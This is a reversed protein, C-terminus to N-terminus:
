PPDFSAANVGFLSSRIRLGASAGGTMATVETNKKAWLSFPLRVQTTAEGSANTTASSASLTAASGSVQFSVVANAIPAGLPGGRRVVASLNFPLGGPQWFGGKTGTLTINASAAVALAQDIDLRGHGIDSNPVTQGVNDAGLQLWDRIETPTADPHEALLLAAAGAVLATAASTGWSWEYDTPALTTARVCVGPAALSLSSGSASGWDIGATVKKAGDMQDTAAVAIVPQSAAKLAPYGVDVPATTESNGAAFVLVRNNAVANAIADNILTDEGGFTWSASLVDAGRAVATDIGCAVGLTTFPKEDSAQPQKAIRVPMIKSQWTVGAVGVSNNSVAAAIGAMETGHSDSPDPEQVDDPPAECPDADPDTPDGTADFPTVIKSKLDPHTTAVGNDLIAVIVGSSGTTKDWADFAKIRELAWQNVLFTDNASFPGLITVSCSQIGGAPGGGTEETRNQPLSQLRVFNPEASRVLRHTTLRNIVDLAARPTLSPFTVLYRNAARRYQRLVQADNGSLLSDIEAAAATAQFQVLFRNVLVHQVGGITYVPIEAEIVGGGILENIAALFAEESANPARRLLIVRYSDLMESPVPVIANPLAAAARVAAAPAEAGEPLAFAKHTASEPLEIRNAGVIYFDDQAHCVAGVSLALVFVWATSTRNMNRETRAYM